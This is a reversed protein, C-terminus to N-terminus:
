EIYIYGDVYTHIMFIYLLYIRHKIVPIIDALKFRSWIVLQYIDFCSYNCPRTWKRQMGHKFLSRKFFLIVKRTRFDDGIFLLYDAFM